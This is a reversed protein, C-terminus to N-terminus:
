GKLNTLYYKKAYILIISVFFGILLAFFIVKKENASVIKAYPNETIPNWNINFFPTKFNVTKVNNSDSLNKISDQLNKLNFELHNVEETLIKSGKLYDSSMESLNEGDVLNIKEAIALSRSKLYLSQKIQFEINTVFDLFVKKSIFFIYRELLKDGDVGKPFFIEFESILNNDYHNDVYPVKQVLYKNRLYKSFMIKNQDLYNRLSESGKNERVFKEFNTRSLIERILESSFERQSNARPLDNGLSIVNLNTLGIIQSFTYYDFIPSTANSISKVKITAHYLPTLSKNYIHGIFGFFITVSIILLKNKFLLKLVKSLDILDEQSRHKSKKKM